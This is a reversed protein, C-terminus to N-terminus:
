RNRLGRGMQNGMGSAQGRGLQKQCGSGKASGMGAGNGFGLGLRYEQNLGTGDCNAQNEVMNTYIAEAEEATLIGEEVRQDLIAKKNELIAAKFEELVGYELALEGFSLDAKQEYLEEVPIGILASLTQAPSQLEAAYAGTGSAALLATLFLGMLYNKTKNM